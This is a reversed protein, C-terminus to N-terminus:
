WRYGILAGVSFGGAMRNEGLLTVEAMSYRVEVGMNFHETLALSIGSDLWFGVSDDDDEVGLSQMEATVLSLGGGVFPHFLPNQDWYKRVGLDLESIEASNQVVRGTRSVLSDEEQDSGIVDIAINFPWERKRFDIELGYADQREVPAWDSSRLYTQGLFFNVHGTWDGEAFVPESTSCLLVSPFLIWLLVVLPYRCKNYRRQNYSKPDM